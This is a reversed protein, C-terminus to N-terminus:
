SATNVLSQTNITPYAVTIGQSLASGIAKDLEENQIIEPNIPVQLVNYKQKSKQIKKITKTIKKAINKVAEESMIISTQEM